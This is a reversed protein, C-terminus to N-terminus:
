ASVMQIFGTLRMEEHYHPDGVMQGPQPPPASQLFAEAMTTAQAMLAPGLSFDLFGSSLPCPSPIYLVPLRQAVVPAEILVRQRLAAHLAMAMMDAVHRPERELHCADGVDLVVLSAAGMQVAGNLPVNATLGGDVYLKGNIEVPPYIGPIASSALLTPHLEGATFLAGHYSMLETTLAGFPIQLDAFDTAALMRCGLEVLADNPFLSTRHTLLHRAQAILGGPFVDQREMQQWLDALRAVGEDLGWDAIVAGNLAGVSSGVIMDPYIGAQRLARLMGVQIAGLAAGGSLVFAIPHPLANQWQTNM